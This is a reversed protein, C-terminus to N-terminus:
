FCRPLRKRLETSYRMCNVKSTLCQGKLKMKLKHFLVLDPSYPPHPIIVMNNNTVLETATLSTHAPANDHRLLWNHNRWLEPRKRRVNEKLLSLVDGYVDSNDATNPPVSESHAIGNVGFFFFAILMSKTSSRFQRVKKSRPSQPNTWQLSRQKTEPDYSYIWSEDGTIIRSIFTRDENAIVRLELCTFFIWPLFKAATRHMNFHETLIEQCVEYSMRATDPPCSYQLPNAWLM